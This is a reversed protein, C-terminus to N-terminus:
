IILLPYRKCCSLFKQYLLLQCCSPSLSLSLSLSTPSYSPCLLACRNSVNLTQIPCLGEKLLASLAEGATTFDPQVANLNEDKGLLNKSMDLEKLQRNNMLVEVFAACEGDDINADSMRLCKLRCDANGVFNALARAAESDIINQSIDLIEITPHKAIANIIASLGDDELNNDSLNIAQLYPLNPLADALVKAMQNGIGIHALNISTSIRKRLLVHARPPLGHRLCGALFVARPSAPTYSSTMKPDKYSHDDLRSSFAPNAISLAGGRHHSSSSQHHLFFDDDNEDKMVHLGENLLAEDTEDITIADRSEGILEQLQELRLHSLHNSTAAAASSEKKQFSSSSSASSSFPKHSLLASTSSSSSSSNGTPSSSLNAKQQQPQTKQASSSSTFSASSSSGTSKRVASGSSPNNGKPSVLPSNSSSHRGLYPIEQDLGENAEGNDDGNNNGLLAETSASGVSSWGVTKSKRLKPSSAIDIDDIINVSIMSPQKNSLNASPTPSNLDASSSSKVRLLMNSSGGSKNTNSNHLHNSSTSSSFNGSSKSHMLHLQSPSPSSPTEHNQQSSFSNNASSSVVASLPRPLAAGKSLASSSLGPMPHLTSTSARASSPRQQQKMKTLMREQRKRVALPARNILPVLANGDKDRPTLLGKENLSTLAFTLINDKRGEKVALGQGRKKKKVTGEGDEEEEDIPNADDIMIEHLEGYGGVLIEGQEKLQQYTVNFASVAKEGFYRNCLDSTLEPLHRTAYQAKKLETININMISQEKKKLSSPPPAKQPSSQGLLQRPSTPRSPPRSPGRSHSMVDTITTAAATAVTTPKLETEKKEKEKIVVVSSPPDLKLSPIITTTSAQLEKTLPERKRSVPDKDNDGNEYRRLGLEWGTRPRRPPFFRQESVPFVNVSM